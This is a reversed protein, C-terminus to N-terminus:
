TLDVKLSERSKLNVIWFIQESSGCSIITTGKYNILGSSGFDFSVFIDPVPDIILRDEITAKEINFVPDLHRKKLLNLMIEETKEGLTGQYSSFINGDCLLIKVEGEVNLFVPSPFINEGSELNGKKILILKSNLPLTKRFKEMEREDFHESFLFILLHKCEIKSIEELFKERKGWLVKGSIFACCVNEELSAIKRNLPIDPWLVNLVEIRENKECVLGVVEDQVV